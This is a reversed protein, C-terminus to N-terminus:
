NSMRIKKEVVIHKRTPSCHPFISRIAEENNIGKASSTWIHTGEFNDIGYFGCTLQGINNLGSFIGKGKYEPHVLATDVNVTHIANRTGAEWEEYINPIGLLLGVLKKSSKDYATPFLPNIDTLDCSNWSRIFTQNNSINKFAIPDSYKLLPFHKHLKFLENWRHIGSSTDPLLQQFSQKALTKAEDLILPIQNFSYYCFEIDKHLQTGKDWNKTDVHLCSYESEFSYGLRDLDSLYQKDPSNFAVGYLLPQDFGETQFGIGGLGKPFNIPGRIRRYRYKKAVKEITHMLRELVEFSNYSLWGFTLAKRGYSRYDPHVM